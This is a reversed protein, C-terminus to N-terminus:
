DAPQHERHEHVLLSGTQISSLAWNALFNRTDLVKKEKKLKVDVVIQKLLEPRGLFIDIM